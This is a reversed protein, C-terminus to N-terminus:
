RLEVGREGAEVAGIVYAEPASAVAADVADRDIIAVMGVGLNFVRAMEDDTVAGLRQITSFIDPVPWSRRHLVARCGDPLARIVNGPLGGGTIHAFAHVSAQARMAAMVPSYIVSPRLLEDAVDHLPLGAVDLLVHRALSYGNSRLGPSALGIIVDGPRVMAGTLLSSREAVGVCFGALELGHIEGHEAVEGGVLACGAQRCGEAVGSVIQEVVEPALRGVAIYDLFFLPDAGQVAVDDACMAVLDIGITDFRGTAEAIDLKTGVGDTSSVLVPDRLGGPVRVVGGFGGIDGLVEPRFTSRAHPAIRAVVDDAAELSVGAAAYTAPEPV